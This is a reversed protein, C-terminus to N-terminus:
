YDQMDEIQELLMSSWSGAPKGQIWAPGLRALRDLAQRRIERRIERGAIFGVRERLWGVLARAIFLLAMAGFYGTLDSRPRQEVILAQLLHALVWAQAVIMLGGVLGLLLSLHLWRKVLASQSKLWRVLVQQRNKNM